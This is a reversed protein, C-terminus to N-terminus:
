GVVAVSMSIPGYSVDGDAHLTIAGSVSDCKLTFTAVGAGPIAMRRTFRAPWGLSRDTHMHGIAHDVGALNVAFLAEGGSTASFDVSPLDATVECVQGVGAFDVDLAAVNVTAGSAVVVDTAVEASGLEITGLSHWRVGDHYAPHQGQSADYMVGWAPFLLDGAPM